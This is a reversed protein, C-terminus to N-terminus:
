NFSLEIQEHRTENCPFEWGEKEQNENGEHSVIEVLDM